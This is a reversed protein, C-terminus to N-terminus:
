EIPIYTFYREISLINKNNLLLYSGAILGKINSWLTDTGITYGSMRFATLQESNIMKNKILKAQASLVLSRNEFNGFYLTVEQTIWQLM